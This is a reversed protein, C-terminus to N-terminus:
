PMTAPMKSIVCTAADPMGNEYWHVLLQNIMPCHYLDCSHADSGQLGQNAAGKVTLFVLGAGKRVIIRRAWNPAFRLAPGRMILWESELYRPASLHKEFTSEIERLARYYCWADIWRCFNDAWALPDTREQFLGHRAFTIGGRLIDAVKLGQRLPASAPHRLTGRALSRSASVPEPVRRWTQACTMIPCAAAAARVLWAKM